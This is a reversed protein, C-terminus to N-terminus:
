RCGDPDAQGLTTPFNTSSSHGTIYVVPLGGEDVVAISARPNDQGNGGIVTSFYHTTLTSNFKALFVDWDSNAGISGYTKLSPAQGKPFGLNSKTFGLVWVNGQSDQVAQYARDIRSGGLYTWKQVSQLNFNLIAVFAESGTSAVRSTLGGIGLRRFCM